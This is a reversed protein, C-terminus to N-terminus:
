NGYKMLDWEFINMYRHGEVYMDHWSPLKAKRIFKAGLKECVRYSATNGDDNTILLKTMGHYRAIPVLLCCAHLAYGNGRYAEDIEYGVHGSYYMGETFGIRLRIEGIGVEDKCIDFLYSPVWNKSPDAPQKEVNSISVPNGGIAIVDMFEEFVCPLSDYYAIERIVDRKAM